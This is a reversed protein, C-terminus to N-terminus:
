VVTFEAWAYAHRNILFMNAYEITLEIAHPSLSAYTIVRKADSKFGIRKILVVM